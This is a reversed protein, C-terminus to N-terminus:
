TCGEARALLSAILRLNAQQAVILAHLIENLMPMHLNSIARKAQEFEIIAEKACQSAIGSTYALKRILSQSLSRMQIDNEECWAELLRLTWTPQGQDLDHAVDQVDDMWQMGVHMHDLAKCQCASIFDTEDHNDARLAIFKPVLHSLKAKNIAIETFQTREALLHSAQRREQYLTRFTDLM